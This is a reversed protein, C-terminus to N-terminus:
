FILSLKFILRENEAKKVLELFEAKAKQVAEPAGEIRVPKNDQPIRIVVDFDKNLRAVNEYRKGTVITLYKPDVQVEECTMNNKLSNIVHELREKVREVEEPPGDLIIKNEAEFKVHTNPYDAILKSINSGKEGILYRHIWNPAEIQINVISNAKACVQALAAGLKSEEGFLYITESPSESKPVQVYVDFDKFIEQVTSGNKGIILKHQSKTIQIALKTINLKSKEAYIRKIEECAAEVKDREGSVAIEDKEIQPPPINVKAGTRSVIDAAIEGNFGRIWPHYLKPINLREFSTKSQEECILQIEHIAQEVCDKAGVITILESNAETKPITIQTCTKEQLEKM